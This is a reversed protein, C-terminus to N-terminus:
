RAGGKLIREFAKGRDASSLLYRPLKMARDSGGAHHAEITFTAAYGAAAAKALLHDDYIGFPWALMDVSVGLERELKEKSKGLQMEVSKEYEGPSMKRKDQKFNPHWYTHGQFDFFGTKKLERIQDWTMAYSAHSICSPYLFLTVPVRYKRVLPLMDTYVTRHGDDAAIVVSKPAPSPGKGLYYNVLHRLPIVTYGNERLYRLHSEFVSTPVTMSDAVTPGFRHYLLIPVRVQQPSEQGGREGRAAPTGALLLIVVAFSLFVRKRM